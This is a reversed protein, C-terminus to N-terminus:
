KVGPATNEYNKVRPLLQADCMVFFLGVSCRMRFFDEGPLKGCVSDDYYIFIDGLVCSPACFVSVCVSVGFRLSFCFVYVLFAFFVCLFVFGCCFCFCLLVCFWLSCVFANFVCFVVFVCVRLLFM